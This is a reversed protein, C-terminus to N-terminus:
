PLKKVPITMLWFTIIITLFISESNTDLLASDTKNSNKHLLRM